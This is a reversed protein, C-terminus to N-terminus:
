KSYKMTYSISIDDGTKITGFLAKPPSVNYDTMKMKKVGTIIYSKDSANYKAIAVLSIEKTTGAITLRGTCNLQYSNGSAPTVTASSLLFSLNPNNDTKLAKYTNNDMGTHDSKLSKAPLIFSLKSVGTINNKNDIVFSVQSTGKVAKMEWDHVNSTGNLRIDMTESQYATQGSVAASFSLGSLVLIFFSAIKNTFSNKM